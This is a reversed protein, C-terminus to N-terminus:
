FWAGVGFLLGRGVFLRPFSGGLLGYAGGWAAATAYHIITDASKKRSSKIPSGSSKKSLADAAKSTTTEKPEPKGAVKMWSTQFLNMALGAVLGAAMGVLLDTSAAAARTMPTPPVAPKTM